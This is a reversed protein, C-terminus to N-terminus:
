CTHNSGWGHEPCWEHKATLKLALNAACDKNCFKGGLALEPKITKQCLFCRIHKITVKVHGWYKGALISRIANSGVGYEEGLTDPSEGKALRKKIDLVKTEDLKATSIKSGSLKTGHIVKDAENEAHTGWKLNSASCNNKNGDLHRVEHKPTPKPPLFAWAIAHHLFIKRLKGCWPEKPEQMRVRLYGYKDPYPAVEHLKGKKDTRYVIGDESAYYGVYGPISTLSEAEM